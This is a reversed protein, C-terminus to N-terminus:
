ENRSLIGKVKSKVRRWIPDALGALAGGAKAEPSAFPASFETKEVLDEPTKSSLLGRSVTRAARERQMTKTMGAQEQVAEKAMEAPNTSGSSATGMQRSMTREVKTSMKRLEGLYQMYPSLSSTLEEYGPITKLVNTTRDLLAGSQRLQVNNVSEGRRKALAMSGVKNQLQQKTDELWRGSVDTKGQSRAIALAEPNQAIEADHAKFLADYGTEPHNAIVDKAKNVNDIMSGLASLNDQAASPSLRSKQVLTNRGLRTLMGIPRQLEPAVGAFKEGAKELADMGEKFGTGAFVGEGSPASKRVFDHIEAASPNLKKIGLEAAGGGFAGLLGSALAQPLAKIPSVERGPQDAIGAAEGVGAAATGGMLMGRLSPTLHAVAPGILDKTLGGAGVGAAM